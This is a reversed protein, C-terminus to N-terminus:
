PRRKQNVEVPTNYSDASDIPQLTSLTSCYFLGETSASKRNLATVVLSAINKSDSYTGARCNCTVTAEHYELTHNVVGSAYISVTKYDPKWNSPDINAVVICPNASISTVASTLPSDAILATYVDIETM